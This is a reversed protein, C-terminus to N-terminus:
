RPSLVQLRPEKTIAAKFQMIATIKTIPKKTMKIWILFTSLFLNPKIQNYREKHQGFDEIIVVKNM